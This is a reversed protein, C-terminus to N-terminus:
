IDYDEKVRRVIKRLSLKDVTSFVDIVKETLEVWKPLDKEKCILELEGSFPFDDDVYKMVDELKKRMEENLFRKRRDSIEYWIKMDNIYSEYAVEKM